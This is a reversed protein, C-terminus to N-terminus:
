NTFTNIFPTENINLLAGEDVFLDGFISIYRAGDYIIIESPPFYLSYPATTLGLSKRHVDQINATSKMVIGGIIKIRDFGTHGDQASIIQSDAKTLIFFGHILDFQNATPFTGGGEIILDGNIIFMCGRDKGTPGTYQNITFPPRITLNGNIFFITRVDCQNGPNLTADSNITVVRRETIKFPNLPLYGYELGTSVRVDSTIKAKELTSTRLNDYNIYKDNQDIYPSGTATKTKEYKNKSCRGLSSPTAFTYSFLYESECKYQAATPNTSNIYKIYTPMTFGSKLYTDGGQTVLYGPPDIVTFTSSKQCTRYFSGGQNSYHYKTYWTYTGADGIVTTSCSANNSCNPSLVGNQVLTASEFAFNYYGNAATIQTTNRRANLQLPGGKTAPNPSATMTIDGPRYPDGYDCDPPPPEELVAIIMTSDNFDYSGSDSGGDAWGQAEIVTYGQSQIGALQSDISWNGLPPEGIVHSDYGSTWMGFEEIIPAVVMQQGATIMIDTRLVGPQVNYFTQGNYVNAADGFLILPGSARAIFTQNRPCYPPCNGNKHCERNDPYVISTCSTPVGAEALVTFFVSIFLFFLIKILKSYKM